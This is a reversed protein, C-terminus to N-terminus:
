VRTQLYVHAMAHPRSRARWWCGAIAAAVGVPSGRGWIFEERKRIIDLSPPSRFSNNIRSGRCIASKTIDRQQWVPGEIKQIKGVRRVNQEQRHAWSPFKRLIRGDRIICSKLDLKVAGGGGGARGREKKRGISGPLLKRWSSSHIRRETGWPKTWENGINIVRLTNERTKEGEKEWEREGQRKKGESEEKEHERCRKYSFVRTVYSIMFFINHHFRSFCGGICVTTFVNM